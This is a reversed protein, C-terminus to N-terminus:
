YPCIKKRPNAKKANKYCIRYIYNFNLHKFRNYQCPIQVRCMKWKKWYTSNGFLIEKSM